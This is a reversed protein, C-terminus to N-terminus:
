RPKNSSKRFINFRPKKDPKRPDILPPSDARPQQLDERLPRYMPVQLADSPPQQPQPQRQASVPRQRLQQAVASHSRGDDEFRSRQDRQSRLLQEQALREREQMLEDFEQQEAPPLDHSSASFSSLTLQHASRRTESDEKDIADIISNMGDLLLAVMDIHNWYEERPESWLAFQNTLRSPKTLYCLYLYSQIEAIILPNQMWLPFYARYNFNTHEEVMKVLMNILISICLFDVVWKLYDPFHAVNENPPMAQTLMFSGTYQAEKSMLANIIAFGSPNAQFAEYMLNQIRLAVGVTDDPQVHAPILDAILKVAEKTYVRLLAKKEEQNLNQAIGLFYGYLEARNAPQNQPNTIARLNKELKFAAQEVRTYKGCCCLTRVCRNLYGGAGGASQETEEWSPFKQELLPVGQGDDAAAGGAPPFLACGRL